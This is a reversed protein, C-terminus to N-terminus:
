VARALHGEDKESPPARHFKGLSARRLNVQGGEYIEYLFSKRTKRDMSLLFDSPVCFEPGV